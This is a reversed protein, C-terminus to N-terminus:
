AYEVTGDDEAWRSGFHEEQISEIVQCVRHWYDRPLTDQHMCGSELDGLDGSQIFDKLVSLNYIIDDIHMKATSLSDEDKLFIDMYRRTVDLHINVLELRLNENVIQRAM